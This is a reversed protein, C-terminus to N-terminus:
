EVVWPGKSLKKLMSLNGMILAKKKVVSWKKLQVERKEANKRSVHKEKYVLEINSFQKTYFSQKKEHQGIRREINDTLGVYYIRKDCELIYVYWM